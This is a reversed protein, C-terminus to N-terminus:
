IHAEKKLLGEFKLNEKFKKTLIDIPICDLVFLDISVFVTISLLKSQYSKKFFTFVLAGFLSLAEM